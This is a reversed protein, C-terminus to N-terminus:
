NDVPHLLRQTSDPADRERLDRPQQSPTPRRPKANPAENPKRKPPADSTGLRVWLDLADDLALVRLDDSMDRVCPIPNHKILCLTPTSLPPLALGVGARGRAAPPAAPSVAIGWHRITAFAQM